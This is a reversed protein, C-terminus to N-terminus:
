ESCKSNNCGKAASVIEKIKELMELNNNIPINLELKLSGHCCHKDEEPSYSEASYIEVTNYLNEDIVGGIVYIKNDVIASGCATRITPMPPLTKYTNSKIDYFLFTNLHQMTDYNSGGIIYVKEDCIDSAYHFQNSPLDLGESWSDNFIDYIYLKRSNITGPIHGGSVWYLFGNNHHLCGFGLKVPLSSGTTWIGTSLDLIEVTDTFVWVGNVINKVGGVCYLKGNAHCCRLAGRATPLQSPSVSWTNTTTDYVYIHNSFTTAGVGGICYFKDGVAVGETLYLSEPMPKATTWYNNETDYVELVNTTNRHNSTSISGGACYIKKGVRAYAFGGRPTPMSAGTTWTGNIPLSM